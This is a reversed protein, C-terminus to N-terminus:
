QKKSKVEGHQNPYRKKLYEVQAKYYDRDEVVSQFRTKPRGKLPNDTSSNKGRQDVLKKGEGFKKVWNKLQTASRLGLQDSLSRYSGESNLYMEIAKLKFEETYHQFIQGKVPMFFGRGLLLTVDMFLIMPKKCQRSLPSLIM